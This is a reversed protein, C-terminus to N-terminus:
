ISKFVDKWFPENSAFRSLTARIGLAKSDFLSYTMWFHNTLKPNKDTTKALSIKYKTPITSLTMRCSVPLQDECLKSLVSWYEPYTCRTDLLTLSVCTTAIDLATETLFVSADQSFIWCLLASFVCLREFLVFGCEKFSQCLLPRITSCRFLLGTCDSATPRDLDHDLDVLMKTVVDKVSIPTEILSIYKEESIEEEFLSNAVVHCALYRVYESLKSSFTDRHSKTEIEVSWRHFFANCKEETRIRPLISDLSAEQVSESIELLNTSFEEVITHRKCCNPILEPRERTDVPVLQSEKAITMVWQSDYVISKPVQETRAGDFYRHAYAEAATLRKTPNMELMKTLLDRLSPSLGLRELADNLTECRARVASDMNKWLHQKERESSIFWPSDKWVSLADRWNQPKMLAVINMAAETNTPKVGNRVGTKKDKKGRPKSSSVSDDCRLNFHVMPNFGFLSVLFICAAAWVDGKARSAPDDLDVAYLMYEFPRFEQNYTFIPIRRNKIWPSCALGFDIVTPMHNSVIINNGKIDMHSLGRRHMTDLAVLTGAMYMKPRPDEDLMKPREHTKAMQLIETFTIGTELKLALMSTDTSISGYSRYAKCAKALHQNTPINRCISLERIVNGDCPGITKGHKRDGNKKGDIEKVAYLGIDLEIQPEKSNVAYAYVVGYSGKGIPGLKKGFAQKNSTMYHNNADFCKNQTMTTTCMDAFQKQEAMNSIFYKKGV